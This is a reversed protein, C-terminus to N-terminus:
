LYLNPNSNPNVSIDSACALEFVFLRLINLSPLPIVRPYGVLSIIKPQFTLTLTLTLTLLLVAHTRVRHTGELEAYM